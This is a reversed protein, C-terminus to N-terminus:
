DNELLWKGLFSPYIQSGKAVWECVGLQVLEHMLSADMFGSAGNACELAQRQLATLEPVRMKYIWTGESAAVSRRKEEAEADLGEFLFSGLAEGNTILWRGM